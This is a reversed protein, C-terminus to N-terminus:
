CWRAPKAAAATTLALPPTVILTAIHRHQEVAAEEEREKGAEARGRSGTRQLEVSVRAIVDDAQRSVRELEDQLKALSELRQKAGDTM